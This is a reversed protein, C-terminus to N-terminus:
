ALRSQRLGLLGGPDNHLVELRNALDIGAIEKGPTGYVFPNQTMKRRFEEIEKLVCHYEKTSIVPMREELSECVYLLFEQYSIVYIGVAVPEQTTLPITVHIKSIFFRREGSLFRLVGILWDTKELPTDGIWVIGPHRGESILQQNKSAREALM